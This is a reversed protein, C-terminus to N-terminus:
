FRTTIGLSARGPGISPTLAAPAPKSTLLLFTGAGIGVAGVAWAIANIPLLTEASAVADRGEQDCRPTCTRDATSNDHLLMAGTIAAVGLGVVGLGGAVYAVTRKTNTTQRTVTVIRTGGSAMELRPVAVRYARDTDSRAATEPVTVHTQWSKKAPASAEIRHDGPDVAWFSWEARDVDKGDVRVTVDAAEATVVLYPVRARLENLKAVATEERGRKGTAHALKEVARLNQWSSGLRGIKEYCLALNFQTGLAPDLRQSEELKPCAAAYDQQAVLASAETFLKEAREVESATQASATSALTIAAALVSAFVRRDSM